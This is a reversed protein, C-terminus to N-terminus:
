ARSRLGFVPRRLWGATVGANREGHGLPTPAPRVLQGRRLRDRSSRGGAAEGCRPWRWEESTRAKQELREMKRAEQRVFPTAAGRGAQEGKM